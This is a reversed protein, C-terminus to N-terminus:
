DRLDELVATTGFRRGNRLFELRVKDGVKKGAFADVLDDNGRVPHGDVAKIVDGYVIRGFADRRTPRLGAKAAASGRRVELIMAGKVGLRRRIMEPVLTVGLGARKVRGYRILQPVVQSVTDVPIAFGIGASAGSPSYIATAVGILRGRSDLLPGGSNGPNIAADTQIVDHIKRGGISRMTRGLASVVGTTLSYDLGFPSGISLARQGVKLDASRGPVIPRLIKAPADIKLVALDHNASYGVLRAPYSKHNPLVVEISDAGYVVHFNTVIHGRKDWVFGSGAGRPVEYVDDSFWDWQLAANKIFVVSPSVREFIETFVKEEPLLDARVQGALVTVAWWGAAM